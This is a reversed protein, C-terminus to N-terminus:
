LAEKIKKQRKNNRFKVIIIIAFLILNFRISKIINKEKNYKYVCVCIEYIITHM